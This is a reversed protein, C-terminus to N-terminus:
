DKLYHDYILQCKECTPLDIDPTALGEKVFGCLATITKGELLNADLEKKPFYHRVEDPPTDSSLVEEELLTGGSTDTM